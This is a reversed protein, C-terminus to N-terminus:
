GLNDSNGSGGAGPGSPVDRLHRPTKGRVPSRTQRKALRSQLATQHGSIKFFSGISRSSISPIIGRKMAEDAIEWPTWHTIARGSECPDECALAVVACFIQEATFILPTGPRSADSLREAVSADCNETRRRWAQVTSRGIGLEDAAARVGVDRSALFIIRARMALQQPCTTQREFAKLQRRERDRERDTVPIPAARLLPM